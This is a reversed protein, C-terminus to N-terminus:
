ARYTTNPKVAPSPQTHGIFTCPEFWTSDESVIWKMQRPQGSGPVEEYPVMPVRPLYGGYHGPMMEWATWATSNINFPAFWSRVFQIKNDKLEQLVTDNDLQGMGLNYGTAPFYTGDDFEFYRSDNPSVKIFGKNNSTAVTFSFEGSEVSGGKDQATLKYKWIGQQNPSFRVKWKFNGTPYNWVKNNRIEDLFEEYYFAPTRYANNWNTEGPPLFIGDVSIGLNIYKQLYQNADASSVYPFQFNLAQSNTIDFTIEFKEYKPVLGNPYSPANTSITSPDISPAALIVNFSSYFFLIIIFVFAPKICDKISFM